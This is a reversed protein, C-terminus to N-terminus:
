KAPTFYSFLTNLQKPASKRQRSLSLANKPLLSSSLTTRTQRSLPRGGRSRAGGAEFRVRTTKAPGIRSQPKPPEIDFSSPPVQLATREPSDDEIEEVSIQKELHNFCEGGDKKRPSFFDDYMDFPQDRQIGGLEDLRQSEHYPKPSEELTVRRAVVRKENRGTSFYKSLTSVDHEHVHVDEAVESLPSGHDCGPNEQFPEDNPEMLGPPLNMTPSGGRSPSTMTTPLQIVVSQENPKMLEPPLNMTPSCDRSLSATTPAISQENPEMLGPPLNMTPSAGRSPSAMTTPIMVSQENHEMWEPPLNMTPSSGHSALPPPLVEVVVNQETDHLIGNPDEEDPPPPYPDGVAVFRDVPTENTREMENQFCDQDNRSETVFNSCNNGLANPEYGHTTEGVIFGASIHANQVRTLLRTDLQSGSLTGGATMERPQRRAAEFARKAELVKPPYMLKGDRDFKPKVFRVDGFHRANKQPNKSPQAKPRSEMASGLPLRNEKNDDDNNNYSHRHQEFPNNAHKHFSRPRILSEQGRPSDSVLECDRQNKRYPNKTQVLPRQVAPAQQKTTRKRKRSEPVVVVVEEVPPRPKKHTNQNHSTATPAPLVFFSHPNKPKSVAAVNATTMTPRRTPGMAAATGDHGVQGLFELQHDFRDLCPREGTGDQDISNLYAVHRLKAKYVPHHYFVAEAQSLVREYTHHHDRSHSTTATTRRSSSSKQKTNQHHQQLAYSFRRNPNRHRQRDLLKFANVLGVGALQSPAYDCGALVCAQVFLRAGRGAERQEERMWQVLILELATVTTASRQYHTSLQQNHQPDLLWSMSLVQCSGSNRDLKFLVPFVCRCAASYVLVDSDETIIAQAKGSVCLEVLQADAEYPSQIIHVADKKNHHYKRLLNAVREMVVQTFDATIKICTKYKEFVKYHMAGARKCARAEDLSQQRKQEREHNTVAKLPCRTGDLVLYLASIHAYVLLEQCRKVVYKASTEICKSDRCHRGNDEMAEVYVDAISYVSKHLWSSADIALAQNSFDRVNRTETFPKLGQLLGSIGM